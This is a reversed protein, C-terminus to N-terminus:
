EIIFPFLYVSCNEITDGLIDVQHSYLIIELLPTTEFVEFCDGGQSLGGTGGQYCKSRTWSFSDKYGWRGKQDIIGKQRQWQESVLGEFEESETIERVSERLSSLVDVWLKNNVYIM